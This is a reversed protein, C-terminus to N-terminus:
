ASEPLEQKLTLLPEFLDGHREVRELVAQSDFVLVNPDGAELCHGVEDWRV